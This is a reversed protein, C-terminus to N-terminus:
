IAAENVLDTVKSQFTAWDNVTENIGSVQKITWAASGDSNLQITYQNYTQALVRAPPALILLLTVTAFFVVLLRLKM